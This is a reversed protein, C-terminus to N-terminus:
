LLRQHRFYSSLCGHKLGPCVITHVLQTHGTNDLPSLHMQEMFLDKKDVHVTRTYREVCGYHLRYAFTEARASVFSKEDDHRRCDGDDLFTNSTSADWRNAMSFIRIGLSHYAIVM